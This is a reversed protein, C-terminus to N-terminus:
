VMKIIGTHKSRVHSQYVDKNVFEKGCFECYCLGKKLHVRNVHAKYNPRSHFEKNCYECVFNEVIFEQHAQLQNFNMEHLSKIIKKRFDGREHTEGAGIKRCLKEWLFRM